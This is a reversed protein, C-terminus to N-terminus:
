TLELRLLFSSTPSASLLGFAPSLPPLEVRVVPVLM